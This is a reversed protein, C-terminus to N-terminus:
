NATDTAQSETVPVGIVPPGGPRPTSRAPNTTTSAPAQRGETAAAARAAAAAAATDVAM